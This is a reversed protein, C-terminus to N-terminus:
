FFLKFIDHNLNDATFFRDFLCMPLQAVKDPIESDPDEDIVTVQYRKRTEYPINDAFNSVRYDRRYVICPYSMKITSPPQFYVQESGLIGVLIEQLDARQAM